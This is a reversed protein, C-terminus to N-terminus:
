GGNGKFLGLSESYKGSSKGSPVIMERNDKTVGDKMTEIFSHLDDDVDESIISDFVNFIYNYEEEDNLFMCNTLRLTKSEIISVLSEASTYHYFTNTGRSQGRYEKEISIIEM